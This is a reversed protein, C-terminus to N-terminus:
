NPRVLEDSVADKMLYIIHKVRKAGIVVGISINAEKGSPRRCKCCAVETDSRGKELLRGHVSVKQGLLAMDVLPLKFLGDGVFEEPNEAGNVFLPSDEPAFAPIAKPDINRTM